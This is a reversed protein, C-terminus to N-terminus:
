RIPQKEPSSANTEVFNCQTLYPQRHSRRVPTVLELATDVECYPGAWHHWMSSTALPSPESGAAAAGCCEGPPRPQQAVGPLVVGRVRRDMPGKQLYIRSGRDDIGGSLRAPTTSRAFDACGNWSCLFTGFHVELPKAAFRGTQAKGCGGPPLHM